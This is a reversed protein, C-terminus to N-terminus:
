RPGMFECKQVLAIFRPDARFEKWKPDVPLFILHVDRAEFARQLWEFVEDRQNLGAYILATTYPPIYRERSISDLTAIVNRAEENQGLKALIYGRLGLVKSNGGSFRGANALAELALETKGIQEYVQALQFYGIWFEPDVVTSQRGFELAASYDGAHFALMASLAHYMAYFPDLERARKISRLAEDHRELHSLVVGLMRHALPNNGDLEVARRFATEAVPWNWNLFYNVFGLSTQSEALNEAARVAHAAAERALPWILSPQADSTIVSSAYADALGSWALAYNRDLDTAQRYYELARRTSAPTLQNWFYRGRLYLDYAAANESQRQALASLREPM